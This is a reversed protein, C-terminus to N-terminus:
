NDPNEVVKIPCNMIRIDIVNPVVPPIVSGNLLRPDPIVRLWPPEPGGGPIEGPIPTKGLAIIGGTVIVNRVGPTRRIADWPSQAASVIVANIEVDVPAALVGGGPGGASPPGGEPGTGVTAGSLFGNNVPPAFVEGGRPDTTPIAEIAALEPTVANNSITQDTPNTVVTNAPDTNPATTPAVSTPDTTQDTTPANETSPDTAPADV